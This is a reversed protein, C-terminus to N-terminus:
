NRVDIVFLSGGLVACCCTMYCMIRQSAGVKQWVLRVAERNMVDFTFLSDDVGAAFLMANRHTLLVQWKYQLPSMNQVCAQSPDKDKVDFLSGDVLSAHCWCKHACLKCYGAWEIAM